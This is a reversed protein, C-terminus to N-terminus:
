ALRCTCDERMGSIWFSIQQFIQFREFWSVKRATQIMSSSFRERHFICSQTILSTEFRPWYLLIGDALGPGGGWPRELSLFIRAHYWKLRGDLLISSLCIYLMHFWSVRGNQNWEIKDEIDQV